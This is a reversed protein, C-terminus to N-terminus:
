GHEPSSQTSDEIGLRLFLGKMSRVDESSQDRAKITREDVFSRISRIIRPYNENNPLWWQRIDPIEWFEAMKIRFTM